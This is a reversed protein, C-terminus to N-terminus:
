GVGFVMEARDQRKYVDLHTYSVAETDIPKIFRGNVLTCSYGIEKLNKRVEEATEVMSGVGLIAIDEEEDSVESKGYVM